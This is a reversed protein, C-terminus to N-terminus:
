LGRPSQALSRNERGLRRRGGEETLSESHNETRGQKSLRTIALELGGAGWCIEPPEPNLSTPSYGSLLQLSSECIRGVLRLIWVKGTSSSGDCSSGVEGIGINKNNTGLSRLSLAKWHSEPKFDM